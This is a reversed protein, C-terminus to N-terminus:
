RPALRRRSPPAATLPGPPVPSPLPRGSSPLSPRGPPPRHRSGPTGPVPAPHRRPARPGARAVDTGGPAGRVGGGRRVQGGGGGGGPVQRGDIRGGLVQRGDLAAGGRRRPRLVRVRIR